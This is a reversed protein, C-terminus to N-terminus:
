NDTEGSKHSNSFIKVNRSGPLTICHTRNRVRTHICTIYIYLIHTFVSKAAYVLVRRRDTWWVAFM